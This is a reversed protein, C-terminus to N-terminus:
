VPATQSDTRSLPPFLGGEGSALAARRAQVNDAACRLVHSIDAENFPPAIFDFAGGEIADMYFRTDVVSAVVIVNVPSLAESAMTVVHAWTGDPLTKDTFLLTPPSSSALIRRAERCSGAERVEARQGELKHKLARLTHSNQHILLVSTRQRM